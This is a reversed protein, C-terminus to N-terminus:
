FVYLDVQKDSQGSQVFFPDQACSQAKQANLKTL